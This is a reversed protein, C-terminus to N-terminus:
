WFIIFTIFFSVIFGSAKLSYSFTSFETNRSRGWGGGEVGGVGDGSVVVGHVVFTLSFYYSDLFKFSNYHYYLPFCTHWFAIAFSCCLILIFIIGAFMVLRDLYHTIFLSGGIM